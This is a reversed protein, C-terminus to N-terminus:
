AAPSIATEVYSLHVYRPDGMTWSTQRAPLNREVLWASWEALTMACKSSNCLNCAPLLNAPTNAGGRSLPVVHDPDLRAPKTGCYACCYDFKRAIRMFESWTFEGRAKRERAARRWRHVRRACRKSCTIANPTYLPTFVCACGPCERPTRWEYTSRKPERPKPKRAEAILVMVPHDVPLKSKRKMTASYHKGKCADSCFKAAKRRTQWSQECVLCTNTFTEGPSRGNTKRHWSAYHSSCFGRAWHPRACGDHSCTRNPMDIGKAPNAM